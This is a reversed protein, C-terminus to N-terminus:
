ADGGGALHLALFQGVVVDIIGVRGIFADGFEIGLAGRGAHDDLVGVRATHRFRVIQVVGVALRQSAIGGGGEAADDREVALEIGFGSLRDGLNEGLHDDRGVGGLFRDLDDGRFLVQAQQQGAAQGIRTAHAQRHFRHGATQQHLRAVVRHHVLHLKFDDGFARRAFGFQGIQAEGEADGLM